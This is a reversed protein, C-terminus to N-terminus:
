GRAAELGLVRAIQPEEYGEGKVVVKGAYKARSPDFTKTMNSRHVEALVADLDIGYSVAIGWVVYILDALADAIGVADARFMADQLEAWEEAILALRYHIEDATASVDLEDRVQQGFKEHWERILDGPSRRFRLQENEALLHPVTACLIRRVTGFAAFGPQAGEGSEIEALIRAGAEVHVDPLQPPQVAEVMPVKEVPGGCVFCEDREGHLGHEPCRAIYYMQAGAPAREAVRHLGADHIPCGHM